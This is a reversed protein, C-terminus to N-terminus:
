QREGKTFLGSDAEGMLRLYHGLDKAQCYITGEPRLRNRDSNDAPRQLSQAPVAMLCDNSPWKVLVQGHETYGTVVGIYNMEIDRVGSCPDGISFPRKM